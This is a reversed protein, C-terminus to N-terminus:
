SRSAILSTHERLQKLGHFLNTKVASEPIGLIEAIELRSFGERYRLLLSERQAESLSALLRQLRDDEEERVMRTLQGTRPEDWPRPVDVGERRRRHGITRVVNLCHNRAIRYLWARFNGPVHPTAVVRCFVEQVADEAEEQSYIYSRCFRTLAPRYLRDLLAGAAVDGQRLRAMWEPTWEAEPQAPCQGEQSM